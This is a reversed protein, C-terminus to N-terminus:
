PKLFELTIWGHAGFEQCGMFLLPLSSTVPSVLTRRLGVELCLHWISLLHHGHGWMDGLIWTPEPVIYEWLDVRYSVKHLATWNM